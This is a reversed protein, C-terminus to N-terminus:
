AIAEALRELAETLTKKPCAFNLRQFGEGGPGFIPGDDLWLRAKDVILRNLEAPNLGLARCDFWLLYTGEPEIMKLPSLREKFFARAHDLNAKLYAMLQNLWNEGSEYARQGAALGMVSLQSYGTRRIEEVLTAKLGPNKVFLNANQLGALNFTKSPATAVISIEALEPSLAAFVEHRHGPFVFDCHIEDSVVLCNHKLCLEGMKLLEEKTWVRGVPNHPNCLLFLKIKHDVIKKEFDDFDIEYRFNNLVLNSSIPIRDNEKSCGTFPYYVPSQILIKDGPKSFARIAVALAFVVGPAPKLWGPKTEYGHRRSFWNAVAEYYDGKPESYGFIGHTAVEVLRDLVPKPARFDM